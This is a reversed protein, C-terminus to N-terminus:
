ERWDLPFYLDLHEGSPSQLKMYVRRGRVNGGLKKWMSAVRGLESLNRVEKHGVQVISHDILVNKASASRLIKSGPVVGHVKTSDGEYLRIGFAAEVDIRAQEADSAAQVVIEVPVLDGGRVVTLALTERPLLHRAVDMFERLFEARARGTDADGAHRRGRIEVIVDGEQLGASAAPGGADVDAVTLGTAFAMGDLQKQTNPSASIVAGIVGSRDAEGADLAQLYVRVRDAPIAFGIGEGRSSRASTIGVLAGTMDFLPGGSNGLNIAADLQITAVHPNALIGTRDLASVIGASVTHELGVPCGVAFVTEGVRLSSSQGFKAATFTEDQLAKGEPSRLSLVALDEDQSALLVQASRQRGDAFQATLEGGRRRGSGSSARLMPEIVHYNTLVIGREDYIVGAGVQFDKSGPLHWSLCVVSPRTLEVADALGRASSPEAEGPEAAEGKSQGLGKEFLSESVPNEAAGLGNELGNELARGQSHLGMWVALGGLLTGVLAAGMATWMSISRGRDVVVRLEDRSSSPTEPM